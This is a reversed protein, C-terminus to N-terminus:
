KKKPKNERERKRLDKLNTIHIFLKNELDVYANIFSKGEDYLHKLIKYDNKMDAQTRDLLSINIIKHKFNLLEQELKTEKGFYDKLYIKLTLLLENYNRDPLYFEKKSLESFVQQYLVKKKKINDSILTVNTIGLNFSPYVKGNLRVLEKTLRKAAQYLPLLVKHNM